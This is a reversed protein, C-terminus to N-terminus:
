RALVNGTLIVTLAIGTVLVVFRCLRTILRDIANAAALALRRVSSGAIAPDQDRETMGM